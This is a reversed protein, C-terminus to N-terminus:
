TVDRGIQVATCPGDSRRHMRAAEVLARQVSPAVNGRWVEHQTEDGLHPSKKLAEMPKQRGSMGVGIGASTHVRTGAVQLSKMLGVSQSPEPWHAHTGM